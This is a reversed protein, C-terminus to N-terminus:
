NLMEADLVDGTINERPEAEEPIVSELQARWFNASFTVSMGQNNFSEWITDALWEPCDNHTCVAELLEPLENKIRITKTM